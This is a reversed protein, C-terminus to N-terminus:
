EEQRPMASWSWALRSQIMESDTSVASFATGTIGADGLRLMIRGGGVGAILPFSFSPPLM